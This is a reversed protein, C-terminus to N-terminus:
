IGAEGPSAYGQGPDAQGIGQQKQGQRGVVEIGARHQAIQSGQQGDGAQDSQAGQRQDAPPAGSPGFFPAAQSSTRSHQAAARTERGM